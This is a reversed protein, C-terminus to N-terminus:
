EEVVHHLPGVPEANDDLWQNPFWNTFMEDFEIKSKNLWRDVQLVQIYSGEPLAVTQNGDSMRIWHKLRYTGTQM